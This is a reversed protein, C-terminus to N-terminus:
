GHIGYPLPKDGEAHGVRHSIKCYEQYSALFNSSSVALPTPSRGASRQRESRPLRARAPVLGQGVFASSRAYSFGANERLLARWSSTVMPCCPHAGRGPCSGCREARRPGRRGGTEEQRREPRRERHPGGTASSDPRAEISRARDPRARDGGSSTGLRLCRGAAGWASALTWPSRPARPPPRVARACPVPAAATDGTTGVPQPQACSILSLSPEPLQESPRPQACTEHRGTAGEQGRRTPSPCSSHRPSRGWRM